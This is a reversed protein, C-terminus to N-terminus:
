QGSIARHENPMSRASRSAIVFSFHVIFLSCYIDGDMEHDLSPTARPAAGLKDVRWDL